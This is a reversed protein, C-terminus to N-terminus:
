EMKPIEVEGKKPTTLECIENGPKNQKYTDTVKVCILKLKSTFTYIIFM